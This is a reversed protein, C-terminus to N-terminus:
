AFAEFGELGCGPFFPRRKVLDKNDSQRPSEQVLTKQAITTRFCRFDHQETFVQGKARSTVERSIVRDVSGSLQPAAELAFCELTKTRMHLPSCASAHM